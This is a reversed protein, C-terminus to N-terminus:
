ASRMVPGTRAPPKAIVQHGGEPHPSATEPDFGHREGLVRWAAMAVHRDPRLSGRVDRPYWWQMVGGSAADLLAADAETLRFTRYDGEHPKFCRAREDIM